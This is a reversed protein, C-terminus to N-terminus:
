NYKLEMKIRMSSENLKNNLTNCENKDNLLQKNETM